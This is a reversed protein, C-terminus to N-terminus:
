KEVESAATLQSDIFHDISSALVFSRAGVKIGQLKGETVLKWITTRGVGGLRSRAEAISLLDTTANEFDNM